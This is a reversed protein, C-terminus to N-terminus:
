FGHARARVRPDIDQYQRIFIKGAYCALGVDITKAGPTWEVTLATPKIGLEGCFEQTRANSFERDAAVEDEGRPGIYLPAGGGVWIRTLSKSGLEKILDLSENFVKRNADRGLDNEGLSTYHGMLGLRSGSNHAALVICTSVGITYIGSRGLRYEGIDIDGKESEFASRTELTAAKDTIYEIKM